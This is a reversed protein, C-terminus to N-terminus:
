SVKTKSKFFLYKIAVGGIYMFFVIQILFVYTINIGGLFGVCYTLFAAGFNNFVTIISSAAPVNEKGVERIIYGQIAPYILSMSIGMIGFGILANFISKGSLIIIIGFISMIVAIIVFKLRGVKELIKDGFFRGITFLSWFCILVNPVELKSLGYFNELFRGTWNGTGIETGEYVLIAIALLLIMPTKILQFPSKGNSAKDTDNQIGKLQAAYIFYIGIIVIHIIYTYNFLIGRSLIFKDIPLSIIGGLGVFANALSFKQYKKSLLSLITSLILTGMGITFGSIFYGILLLYFSRSVIIIFSSIIAFSFGLYLSKKLGLIYMIKSGLISMIFSAFFIMSPLLAIIDNSVNYTMKITTIFPALTNYFLSMFFFGAFVITMNKFDRNM